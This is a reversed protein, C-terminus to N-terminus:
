EFHRFGPNSLDEQLIGFLKRSKFVTSCLVTKAQIHKVMQLFFLRLVGIHFRLLSITLFNCLPSRLGSKWIHVPLPFYFARSIKLLNLMLAAKFLPLPYIIHTSLTRQCNLLNKFFKEEIQQVKAINCKLFSLRKDHLVFYM